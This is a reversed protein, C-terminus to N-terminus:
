VTGYINIGSDAKWARIEAWYSVKSKRVVLQITSTGDCVPLFLMARSDRPRSKLWYLIKVDHDPRGDLLDKVFVHKFGEIDALRRKPLAEEPDVSSKTTFSDDATATSLRECITEAVRRPTLGSVEIDIEIWHSRVTPLKSLSHQLNSDRGASNMKRKKELNRRLCVLIFPM